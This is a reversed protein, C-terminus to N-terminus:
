LQNLKLATIGELLPTMFYKPFFIIYMTVYNDITVYTIPETANM